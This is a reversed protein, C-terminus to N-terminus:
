YPRTPESIHILSLAVRCVAPRHLVGCTDALHDRVRGGALQEARVEHAWLRGVQDLWEDLPHREPLGRDLHRSTLVPNVWSQALDHLVRQEAQIQARVLSARTETSPPVRAITAARAALMPIAIVLNAAKRSVRDRICM